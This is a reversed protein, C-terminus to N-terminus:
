NVWLSLIFGGPQACLGESHLPEEPSTSGGRQVAARLEYRVDELWLRQGAAQRDTARFIVWGQKIPFREVTFCLLLASHQRRPPYAASAGPLPPVHKVRPM